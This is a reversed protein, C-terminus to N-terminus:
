GYNSYYEIDQFFEIFINLNVPIKISKKEEIITTTKEAHTNAIPIGFSINIKPFAIAPNRHKMGRYKTKNLLM